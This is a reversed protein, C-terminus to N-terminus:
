NTCGCGGGAKSGIGGTSAERSYFVKQMAHNDPSSEDFAMLPSSLAAKEYFPVSQCGGAAAALALLTFLRNRIRRRDPNQAMPLESYGRDPDATLKEHTRRAPDDATPGRTARAVFEFSGVVPHLNRKPYLLQGRM